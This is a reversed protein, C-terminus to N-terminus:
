SARTARQMKRQLDLVFASVDSCSRLRERMLRVEEVSPEPASSPVLGQLVRRQSEAAAVGKPTLEYYTRSRGGRRRGPVVKWSRALGQAELSRLAPYVSGPGLRLSTKRRVRAVLDLGYGPGSFLAELLAARTSM